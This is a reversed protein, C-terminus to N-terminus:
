SRGFLIGVKVLTFTVFSCLRFTGVPMIATQFFFIECDTGGDVVEIELPAAENDGWDIAGENTEQQPICCIYVKLATTLLM